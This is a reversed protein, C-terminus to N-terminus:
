LAQGDTKSRIPLMLAKAEARQRDIDAQTAANMGPLDARPTLGYFEDYTSRVDAQKWYALRVAKLREEPTGKGGTFNMVAPFKGWTESEIVATVALAQTAELKRELSTQLAPDRACILKWLLRENWKHQLGM